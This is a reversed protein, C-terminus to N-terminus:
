ARRADRGPRRRRSRRPVGPQRRVPRLLLLPAPRRRRAWADREGRRPGPRPREGLARRPHATRLVRELTPPTAPPSSKRGKSALPAGVLIGDDVALDAAAALEVRPAVDVDVVALACDRRGGGRVRVGRVRVEELRRAGAFAEVESGLVLKVGHELHLDRFVRGLEDGLVRALPLPEPAIVTVAAGLQRASAAVEMGIWSAGIVVVAGGDLLRGRIEDCDQLTRMYCVGDLDAGPVELPRPRVGTTLLLREYAIEAGGALRV